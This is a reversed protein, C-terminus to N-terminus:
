KLPNLKGLLYSINVYDYDDTKLNGIEKSWNVIIDHDSWVCNNWGKKYIQKFSQELFAIVDKNAEKHSKVIKVSPLFKEMFEEIVKQIEKDLTEKQM